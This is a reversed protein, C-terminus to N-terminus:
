YEGKEYVKDVESQIYEGYKKYILPYLEGFFKDLEDEEINANWAIPITKWIVRHITREIADDPDQVISKHNRDIYYDISSKIDVYDMRRRSWPSLQSYIDWDTLEKYQEETIIIKM